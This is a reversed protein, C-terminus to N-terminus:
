NDLTSFEPAGFMVVVSLAPFFYFFVFVVYWLEVASTGQHLFTTVSTCVSLLIPSYLFPFGIFLNTAKKIIQLGTSVRCLRTVAECWINKENLFFVFFFQM